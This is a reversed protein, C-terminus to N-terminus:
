SDGERRGHPRHLYAPAEVIPDSRVDIVVCGLIITSHFRVPYLATAERSLNQLDAFTLGM